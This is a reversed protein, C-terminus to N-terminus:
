TRIYAGIERIAMLIEDDRQTFPRGSSAKQVLESHNVVLHEEFALAIEERSSEELLARLKLVRPPRAISRAAGPRISAVALLPAAPPAATAPRLAPHRPVPKRRSKRRPM